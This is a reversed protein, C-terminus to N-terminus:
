AIEPFVLAFKSALISTLCTLMGLFEARKNSGGVLRSILGRRVLLGDFLQKGITIM